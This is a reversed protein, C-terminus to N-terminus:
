GPSVSWGPCASAFDCITGADENTVVVLLELLDMSATDHLSVTTYDFTGASVESTVFCGYGRFRLQTASAPVVVSQWLQEHGGNYGALWAVYASYSNPPQTSRARRKRVNQCNPNQLKQRM